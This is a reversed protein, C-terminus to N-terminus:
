MVSNFFCTNGLNDMPYTIRNPLSAKEPSRFGMPSATKSTNKKGGYVMLQNIARDEMIEYTCSDSGLNRNQVM